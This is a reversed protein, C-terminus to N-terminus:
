VLEIEKWKNVPTRCSICVHRSSERVSRKMRKARLMSAGCPCEYKYKKITKVFESSSCSEFKRGAMRPPMSGGFKQCISKFIYDHETKGRLITDVLHAVEHRFTKEFREWGFEDLLAKSMVIKASYIGTINTKILCYGNASRLRDSIVIELCSCSFNHTKSLDEFVSRLKQIEKIM